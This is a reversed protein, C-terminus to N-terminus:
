NGSLSADRAFLSQGSHGSPKSMRRHCVCMGFRRTPGSGSSLVRRTPIARALAALYDIVATGSVMFSQLPQKSVSLM